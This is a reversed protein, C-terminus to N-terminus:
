FLEETLAELKKIGNELAEIDLDKNIIDAPSFPTKILLVSREDKAKLL